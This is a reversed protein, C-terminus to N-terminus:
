QEKNDKKAIALILFYFFLATTSINTFVEAIHESVTLSLIIRVIIIGLLSAAAILFSKKMIPNEKEKAITNKNRFDPYWVPFRVEM